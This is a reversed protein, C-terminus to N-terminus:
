TSGQRREEADGPSRGGYQLVSVQGDSELVCRRVRGVEEVGHERLQEMLDDLTLMEARLNRGQVRGDKILVLPSPELLQRIAPSRYALWDLGYNWGFITAILVAGETVSHYEGAMGNQAADAIIVIVLLDATGLAGADRRFLRLMVTLFLYIASGRLVLEGLSMTPVFMAHWDISLM